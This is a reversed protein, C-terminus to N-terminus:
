IHLVQHASKMIRKDHTVVLITRSQSLEKILSIFSTTSDEDLASTPEDFILIQSNSYLARAIVLRQRQGGSFKKSSEGLSENIGKPLSLVAEAINAELLAEHVRDTSILHLEQGLAINELITGNVFKPEQPVLAISRPNSESNLQFKITGQTPSLFGMILNILTTKGTGSDGCIAVISNKPIDFSLENLVMTQSSPYMFSLKQISIAIKENSSLFDSLSNGFHYFDNKMFNVIEPSLAFSRNVQLLSAQLRLFAPMVRTASTLILTMEVALSKEDGVVLAILSFLAIGFILSAELIYKPLMGLIQLWGIASSQERYNREFLDGFYQVKGLLNIEQQLNFTEQILRISHINSANKIAENKRSKVSIFKNLLIITLCFYVIVSFGTVPMLVILVVGIVSVLVIDSLAIASYGLADFVTAQVGHTLMLAHSQSSKESAELGQGSLTSTYLRKSLETARNSLFRFLLKSFFIGLFTKLLFACIVVFILIAGFNSSGTDLFSLKEYFGSVEPNTPYILTVAILSMGIIGVYDFLNAILLALCYFIYRTKDARPFTMFIPKIYRQFDAWM